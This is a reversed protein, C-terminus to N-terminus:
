YNGWFNTWPRYYTVNRWYWWYPDVDGGKGQDGPPPSGAMPGPQGGPQAAFIQVVVPASAPPAYGQGPGPGQGQPGQGPQPGSSPGPGQTAPVGAKELLSKVQDRPVEYTEAQDDPVDYFKGDMAQLIPM